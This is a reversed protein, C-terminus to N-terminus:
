TSGWQKLGAALRSVLHNNQAEEEFSVRDTHWELWSEARAGEEADLLGVSVDIIDPREDGRWFVTAGCKSCFHRHTGKSSQYQSLGAMELNLSDGNTQLINAKPIFAWVQIDFGSTLRCSQCACTGALYKTGNACLWWKSNEEKSLANGAADAKLLDPYPASLNKSQEDPRTVKFEISRCQCYAELESGQGDSGIKLRTQQGGTLRKSQGPFGEWAPVDGLWPSFGGDGTDSVFIHDRLEVISSDARELVGSCIGPRPENSDQVYINAGCHNCFSRTGTNSSNYSCLPGRFNIDSSGDPLTLYSACLLGSQHRCMNCHCLYIPLPLSSSPVTASGHVKGCACSFKLVTTRENKAM